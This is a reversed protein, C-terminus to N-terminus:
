VEFAFCAEFKRLRVMCSLNCAGREAFSAQFGRHMDGHDLFLRGRVGLLGRWEAFDGSVVHVLITQAGSPRGVVVLM